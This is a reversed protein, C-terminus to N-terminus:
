MLYRGLIGVRSNPTYILEGSGCLKIWEQKDDDYYFGHDKPDFEGIM